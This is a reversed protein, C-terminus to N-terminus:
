FSMVAVACTQTKKDPHNGSAREPGKRLFGRTGEVQATTRSCQPSRAATWPSVASGSSLRARGADPGSAEKCLSVARHVGSTHRCGQGRGRSVRLMEGATFALGAPHRSPFRGQMRRPGRSLIRRTEAAFHGPPAMVPAEEGCRFLSCRTSEM